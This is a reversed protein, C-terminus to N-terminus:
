KPMPRTPAKRSALNWHDGSLKPCGDLQNYQQILKRLNKQKDMFQLVHGDWSGLQPHAQAITRHNKYLDNTDERM